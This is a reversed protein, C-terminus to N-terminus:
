DPSSKARRSHGHECTAVQDSEGGCRSARRAEKSARRARLGLRAAPGIAGHVHNHRDRRAPRGVGVRPDEGLLERFDPTLLDDDVVFAAGAGIDAVFEDCAGFGVAVGDEVAGRRQRRIGREVAREAVIGQRIQRRDRQDRLKRKEHEHRIGRRGLRDHLEDGIRLGMLALEDHTRGAGAAARM